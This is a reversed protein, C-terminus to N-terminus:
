FNSTLSILMNIIYNRIDCPFDRFYFLYIINDKLSEYIMLNNLDYHKSTLECNIKGILSIVHCKIKNNCNPAVVMSLSLEPYKSLYIEMDKNFHRGDSGHIDFFQLYYFYLAIFTTCYNEYDFYNLIHKYMDFPGDCGYRLQMENSKKTMESEVKQRIKRYEDFKSM